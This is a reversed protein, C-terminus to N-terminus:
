TDHDDGGLYGFIALQLNGVAVFGGDAPGVEGIVLYEISGFFQFILTKGSQIGGPTALRLVAKVYEVVGLFGAHHTADIRIPQRLRHARRYALFMTQEHFASRGDEAVATIEPVLGPRTNHFTGVAVLIRTRHVETVIEVVFDAKLVFQGDRHHSRLLRRVTVKGIVDAHVGVVPHGVVVAVDHLARLLQGVGR